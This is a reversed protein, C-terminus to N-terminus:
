GSLANLGEFPKGDRADERQVELGWARDQVLKCEVVGRVGEERRNGGEMQAGKIGNRPVAQVVNARSVELPRLEVLLARLVQLVDKLV